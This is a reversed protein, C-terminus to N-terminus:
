IFSMKLERSFSIIQLGATHKSPSWFLVEALQDLFSLISAQSQTSGSVVAMQSM